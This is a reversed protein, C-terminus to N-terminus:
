RDGTGDLRLDTHPRTRTGQWLEFPKHPAEQEARRIADADDQALIDSGSCFGSCSDTLIYLRYHVMIAAIGWGWVLADGREAADPIVRRWYDPEYRLAACLVIVWILSIPRRACLKGRSPRDDDHRVVPVDHWYLM